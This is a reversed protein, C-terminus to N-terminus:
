IAGPGVVASTSGKYVRKSIDYDELSWVRRRM